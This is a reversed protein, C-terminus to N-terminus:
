LEKTNSHNNFDKNGQQINAYNVRVYNDRDPRSQEHYFRYGQAIEYPVIGNPWRVDDGSRAVGRKLNKSLFTICKM